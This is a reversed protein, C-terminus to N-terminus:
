KQKEMLIKLQRKAEEINRIVNRKFNKNKELFETEYKLVDNADKIYEKIGLIKDENSMPLDYYYVQEM